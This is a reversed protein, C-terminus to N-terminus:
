SADVGFNPLDKKGSLPPPRSAPPKAPITIDDDEGSSFNFGDLDESDEVRDLDLATKCKISTHSTM